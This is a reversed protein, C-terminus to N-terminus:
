QSGGEKVEPARREMYDALAALTDDIDQVTIVPAMHGVRFVQNALPGFAPSIKISHEKELFAVIDDAPIGAPSCARTVVPAAYPEPVLPPMGLETLGTRLRKGLQWYYAARNSIGEATLAQLAARLALVLTTPMTVPFPHWSAWEPECAFERWLKLDLYFSRPSDARRDMAEWARPSVAVPALGASGGLCKQTASCCIDVGWEDMAFEVGGLSAVADVILLTKSERLMRGIESVPNLVGTTTEVHTMLVAAPAPGQSVASEIAEPKVPEGWSVNVETPIAGHARAMTVMRDSHWGGVAVVVCDGPSLVSGLAADIGATGSGVLCFVQGKTGFVQSLMQLTENYISVWEPGYHAQIPAALAASVSDLVPVPGPIMLRKTM